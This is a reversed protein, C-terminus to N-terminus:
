WTHFLAVFVIIKVINKVVTSNVLKKIILERILGDYSNVLDVWRRSWHSTKKHRIQQDM